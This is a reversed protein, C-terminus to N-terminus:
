TEAGHQRQAAAGHEGGAIRRQRHLLDLDPQAALAAGRDGVGREDARRV